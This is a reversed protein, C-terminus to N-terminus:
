GNPSNLAEFIKAATMRDVLQNVRIWVKEPHGQAQRIELAPIESDIAQMMANPLLEHPEMHFVNAIAALSKPEPFCKGNIYTSISDRGLPKGNPLKAARALDSQTMNAKMMLQYLRRGFEQKTLAKPTLAAAPGEVPTVPMPSLRKTTKRAM